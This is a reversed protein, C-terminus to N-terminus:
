RLSDVVEKATKLDVGTLERYLKIAGISNGERALAVVDAPVNTRLDETYALGTHQLLSAVVRELKAVRVRLQLVESEIM